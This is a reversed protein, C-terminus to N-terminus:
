LTEIKYLDMIIIQYSIIASRPLFELGNLLDNSLLYAMEHKNYWNM